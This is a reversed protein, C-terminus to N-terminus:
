MQCALPFTHEPIIIYYCINLMYVHRKETLYSAPGTEQNKKKEILIFYFLLPLPTMIM